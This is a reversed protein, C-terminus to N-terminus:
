CWKPATLNQHIPLLNFFIYVYLKDLKIDPLLSPNEQIIQMFVSKFKYTSILADGRLSRFHSFNKM